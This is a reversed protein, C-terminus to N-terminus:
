PTPIIAKIKESVKIGLSYIQHNKRNRGHGIPRHSDRRGFKNKSSTRIVRGLTGRLRKRVHYPSLAQIDNDLYSFGALVLEVKFILYLVEPEKIGALYRLKLSLRSRHRPVVRM